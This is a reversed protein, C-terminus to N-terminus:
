HQHQDNLYENHAKAWPSIAGTGRCRPCEVRGDEHCVLCSRFDGGFAITKTGRCFKCTTTGSGACDPCFESCTDENTTCEDMQWNMELHLRSTSETKRTTTSSTELQRPQLDADVELENDEVAFARSRSDVTQASSGRRNDNDVEEQDDAFGPMRDWDIQCEDEEPCEFEEEPGFFIGSHRGQDNDDDNGDHGHYSRVAAFRNRPRIPRRTLLTWSYTKSPLSAYLLLRFINEIRFGTTTMTNQQIVTLTHASRSAM